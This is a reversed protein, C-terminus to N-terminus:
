NVNAPGAVLWTGVHNLLSVFALYIKRSHFQAPTSSDRFSFYQRSLYHTSIDTVRGARLLAGASVDAPIRVRKRGNRGRIRTRTM